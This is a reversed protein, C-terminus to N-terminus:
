INRDFSKFLLWEESSYYIIGKAVQRIQGKGGSSSVTKHLRVGHLQCHSFVSWVWMAAM